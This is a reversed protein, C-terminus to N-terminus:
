AAIGAEELEASAELWRAEAAELQASVEARLKMLASMTLKADAASASGPDFM